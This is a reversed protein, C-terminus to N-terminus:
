QRVRKYPNPVFQSDDPAHVKPPFNERAKQDSQRKDGRGDAKWRKLIAEIYGLNRKNNKVAELTADAFWGEPYDKEISLLMERTKPVIMAINDQYIKFITATAEPEIQNIQNLIMLPSVTKHSNSVTQKSNSVTEAPTDGNSVTPEARNASVYEPSEYINYRATHRDVDLLHLDELEKLCKQVTNVALNVGAAITRLGPNAKGTNRNISLSIFIWVKLADGSIDSLEQKFATSLKIFAPKERAQTHGNWRELVTREPEIEVAPHDYGIGLMEIADTVYEKQDEM